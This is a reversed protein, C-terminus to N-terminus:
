IGVFCGLFHECLGAVGFNSQFEHIAVALWRFAAPLNGPIADERAHMASLEELGEELSNRLSRYLIVTFQVGVVLAIAFTRDFEVEGISRGSERVGHDTRIANTRVDTTMKQSFLM